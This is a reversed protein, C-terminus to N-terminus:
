SCSCAPPQPAGLALRVTARAGFATAISAIGAERDPVVDQVAGFAHTAM